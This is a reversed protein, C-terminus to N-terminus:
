LSPIPRHQFSIWFRANRHGESPRQLYYLTIYGGREDVLSLLGHALFFEFPVGTRRLRAVRIDLDVTLTMYATMWQGRDQRLGTMYGDM